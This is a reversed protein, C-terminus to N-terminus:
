ELDSMSYQIEANNGAKHVRFLMDQDLWNFNADLLVQCAHLPSTARVTIAKLKSWEVDNPMFKYRVQFLSKVACFRRKMENVYEMFSSARGNQWVQSAVGQVLQDVTMNELKPQDQLNMEVGELHCFCRHTEAFLENMDEQLNV